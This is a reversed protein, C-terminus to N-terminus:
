KTIKYIEITEDFEYRKAWKMNSTCKPQENYKLRTIKSKMINEKNKNTRKKFYRFALQENM